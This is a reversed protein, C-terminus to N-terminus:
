KIQLGCQDKNQQERSEPCSAARSSPRFYHLFSSSRYTDGRSRDHFGVLSAWYRNDRRSSDLNPEQKLM